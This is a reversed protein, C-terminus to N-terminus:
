LLLAFVTDAAIIAAICTVVSSTTSRGLVEAGGSVRMGLSISIMSLLIAFIVSKIIGHMFDNVTVVDLIDAWYADPGIGLTAHIYLGAASFAALNGIVVLVPLSFLLGILSPGVVYRAPAIGMVTLADIEGNLQMSGVRSTLQSGSRGAVLIGTILPAFERPISIALGFTVQTEAGFISLTHIGQISLMVGITASMLAVVPVAKVGANIIEDIILHMRVPQNVKRGRFMLYLSDWILLSAYGIATVAGLFSKGLQSIRSAIQNSVDFEM